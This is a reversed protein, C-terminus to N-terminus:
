ATDRVDDARLREDRAEIRLSYEGLREIAGAEAAQTMHQAELEIALGPGHLGRRETEEPRSRQEMITETTDLLVAGFLWIKRLVVDLRQSGRLRRRQQRLDGAGGHDLWGIGGQLGREIVRELLGGFWREAPGFCDHHHM